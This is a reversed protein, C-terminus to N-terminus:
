AVESGQARLRAIEARAELLESGILGRTVRGDPQLELRARQFYQVLLGGEMLAGGLCYGVDMWRGANIDDVFPTLIWFEGFPSGWPDPVAPPLAIPRSAPPEDDAYRAALTQIERILRDWEAPSLGPCNVKDVSNIQFHGLIHTRDIPLGYQQCVWAQLWVTSTWQAPTWAGGKNQTSFGGHEITYTRQNPNWGNDDWTRILPNSRDPQKMDGNTWAAFEPPVLEYITGDEHIFANCSVPGNTLYDLNSASTGEGIHNVIAEIVRPGDTAPDYRDYNKSRKSTVMPPKPIRGMPTEPRDWTGHEAFDALDNALAAVKAGYREALPTADYVEPKTWAWKQELDALVRVTGAWGNAKVIAYRPSRANWPGEGLVYGALHAAWADVGDEVTNYTLAKNYPDDNEAGIGAPNLKDRFIRSQGFATEHAIQAAGLDSNFGYQGAATVIARGLGAPIPTIPLGVWSAGRAANAVLWAQIAEASAVGAGQIPSTRTYTM